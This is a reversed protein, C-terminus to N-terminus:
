SEFQSNYLDAYFGGAHLLETHTGTEVIDGDKMVFIIDADKITSLRHAIVFSTRGSALEGLAQQILLETRTDVSSTAEDLILLPRDALMARAITLLQKQGASIASSDSLVSDYGNPLQSILEDLGVLEVVREIEAQSVDPHAYALNERVTGEFLWTDQLVMAFQREVDERPISAIDVGDILISGSNVEYFRMLLNVLTTKGAGTPGVIAVKSGAPVHASFDHIIEKGPEYGFAVNRFEVEGRVVQQALPAVDTEDKMRTEDMLEFVRTGAAAASQFSTSAQAIQGLPNTFIRVYMIFAVVVGITIDGGVVLMAGVVCVVVYGLNGIFNMLPFMLGSLFQAKWASAYLAENRESFETNVTVQANFARIVTHGNLSEEIHGNLAGLNQQQAVFYKQSRAMILGSGVIGLLSSLIAALALQWSTVFMMVAAGVLTVLGTAMSAISNSLTQQLTDVDNTVRSLTNGTTNTDFYSLPLTDITKDLDSRLSQSVWATSRAMLVGEIASCLFSIVILIGATLTLSRVRDFNIGTMFGAQIEDTIKALFDPMIVTLIVGGIAFILGTIMMPLVPRAYALLRRLVPGVAIKAGGAVGRPPRGRHGRGKGSQAAAHILSEQRAQESHALGTRASEIAADHTLTTSM